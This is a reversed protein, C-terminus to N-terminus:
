RSTSSRAPALDLPGEGADATVQGEIVGVLTGDATLTIRAVSNPAVSLALSARHVELATAASVFTVDGSSLEVVTGGDSSQSYRLLTGETMGFRTGDAFALWADSRAFVAQGPGAEASRTGDITAEGAIRARMPDENQSHDIAWAHLAAVITAGVAMGAPVLIWRERMLEPVFRRGAAADQEGISAMVRLRLAERREASLREPAASAVASEVWRFEYLGDTRRRLM